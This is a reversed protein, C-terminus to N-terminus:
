GFRQTKAYRHRYRAYGRPGCEDYVRGNAGRSMQRDGVDMRTNNVFKRPSAQQPREVPKEATEVGFDVGEVTM